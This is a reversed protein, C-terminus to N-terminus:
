RFINLTSPNTVASRIVRDFDSGCQRSLIAELTAFATPLIENYDFLDDATILLSNPAAAKIQRSFLGTSKCSLLGVVPAPSSTGNLANLTARLGPQTRRYESYNVHSGSLYIPPFFDPGGGSRAHGKGLGKGILAISQDM